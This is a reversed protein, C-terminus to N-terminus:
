AALANSSGEAGGRSPELGAQPGAGQTQQKQKSAQVEQMFMAGVQAMKKVYEMMVPNEMSLVKGVSELQQAIDNLLKEVLQMGTPQQQQGAGSKQAQEAYQALDGGQQQQQVDPAKPPIGPDQPSM